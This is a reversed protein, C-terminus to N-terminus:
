ANHFAAPPCPPHHGDSPITDIIGRGEPSGVNTVIHVHLCVCVFTESVYSIFVAQRCRMSGSRCFKSWKYNKCRVIRWRVKYTSESKEDSQQKFLKISLLPYAITVTGQSCMYALNKGKGGKKHSTM